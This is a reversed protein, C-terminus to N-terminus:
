EEAGSEADDVDDGTEGGVDAVDLWLDDFGPDLDPEFERALVHPDRYRSRSRLFQDRYVSKLAEYRAVTALVGDEDLPREPEPPRYGIRRSPVTTEGDLRLPVPDGIVTPPSANIRRYQHLSVAVPDRHKQASSVFCIRFSRGDPGLDPRGKTYVWRKRRTSGRRARVETVRSEADPCDYEEPDSHVHVWSPFDLVWGVDREFPNEEPGGTGEPDYSIEYCWCGRGGGADRPYGDVLDVTIAGM